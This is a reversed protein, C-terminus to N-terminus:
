RHLASAINETAHRENKMGVLATTIGPLTRVFALARQADTEYDAFLERVTAPLQAALQGQMLSASAFVDLGLEHAADLVPLLKGNVMQTPVHAAEPM